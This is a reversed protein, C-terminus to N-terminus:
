FFVFSGGPSKKYIKLSLFFFADKLQNLKGQKKEKEEGKQKEVVPAGDGAWDYARVGEQGPTPPSIQFEKTGASVM